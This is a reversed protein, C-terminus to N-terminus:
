ERRPREPQIPRQAQSKTLRRITGQLRRRAGEALNLLIHSYDTVGFYGVRNRWYVAVKDGDPLLEALLRQRTQKALDGRESQILFLELLTYALLVFVVQSTVLSFSTSRFGSLDWYCKTQRWGEEGATRLHYLRRIELPDKVELTTMLGWTSVTGDTFHERMLVVDLPVPCEEWLRMRPIVKLELRSLEPRPGEKEERRRKKEAVTRQRKEESQRLHEPRQPPHVPPERPPPTWTIWPTGDVDALRWADETIAMKAKLPVVIDVGHAEKIHGFAEGDIFGRDVLLIKMVGRGVSGVFEDILPVLAKVEHQDETLMRAGAYLLLEQHGRTHALAAVRYYRRFRCRKRQAASLKEEDQSSVPHNHEDFRAVKSGEYHENDPVFLYSGDVIFVGESDFAGASKLYRTVDHGFWSELQRPETDRALKRVFDQDCPTRRAYSNKLNYGKFHHYREGSEPDCKREVQGSELADRLGGCHLIYPLSSFGAAGHLRLTIQSSLYLWLPVDHKQRPSPYSAALRQMDGSGIFNQFFQTEVVRSVVELHDLFGEELKERIFEQDQEFAEWRSM